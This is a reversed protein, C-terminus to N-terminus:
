EHTRNCTRDQFRDKNKKKEEEGKKGTNMQNVLAWNESESEVFENNKPRLGDVYYTPLEFKTRVIPTM